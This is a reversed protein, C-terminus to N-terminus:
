NQPRDTPQENDADESNTILSLTCGRLEFKNDEVTGVGIVKIQDGERIRAVSQRQDDAFFCNLNGDSNECSLEIFFDDDRGLEIGSVNGITAIKRGHFKEQADVINEQYTELMEVLEQQLPTDDKVKTAIQADDVSCGSLTLLSIFTVARCFQYTSIPSM